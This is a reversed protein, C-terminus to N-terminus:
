PRRLTFYGSDPYIHDESNSSRYFMDRVYIREKNSGPTEADYNLLYLRPSVEPVQGHDLYRGKLTIRQTKGKKLRVIANDLVRSFGSTNYGDLQLRVACDTVATVEVTWLYYEGITHAPRSGSELLINKPTFGVGRYTASPTSSAGRLEMYGKGSGESKYYVSTDAMWEVDKPVLRTFNGPEARMEYEDLYQNRLMNNNNRKLIDSLRVYRFGSKDILQRVTASTAHAGDNDHSVSVVVYRNASNINSEDSETSAGQAPAHVVVMDGVKLYPNGFLKVEFTKVPM